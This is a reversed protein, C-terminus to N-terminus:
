ENDNIEDILDTQEREARERDLEEQSAREIATSFVIRNGNFVFDPNLYYDGSRQAYAIIKANVLERLGNRWTAVGFNKILPPDGEGHADHFEQYTYMDLTVVDRNIATKQMQWVLVMLAKFGAKELDFTLAVNQAFLKVFEASDVKKYTTVQTGQVEGTDTNVISVDSNKGLPTVSVQKRRYNVAMSKFFPNESHRTVAGRGRKAKPKDKVKQM